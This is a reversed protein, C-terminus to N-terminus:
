GVGRGVEPLVVVGSSHMLERPPLWWAARKEFVEEEEEKEFFPDKELDSPCSLENLWETIRQEWKEAFDNAFALEQHLKTHNALCQLVRSLSIVEKTFAPGAKSKYPSQDAWQEVGFGDPAVIAPCYFRLFFVGGLAVYEKEPFSISAAERVKKAMKRFSLPCQPLSAFIHELVEECMELFIKHVEPGEEGDESARKLSNGDLAKYPSRLSHTVLIESTRHVLGALYDHCQKRLFLNVILTSLSNGRFLLEVGECRSVESAVLEDIAPSLINLKDFLNHFLHAIKPNRRIRPSKSLAIFLQQFSPSTLEFYFDWVYCM